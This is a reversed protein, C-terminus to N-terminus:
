FKISKKLGAEDFEVEIKGLSKASGAAAHIIVEANSNNLAVVPSTHFNEEHGSIIFDLHTSKKALTADDLSSKNKYGLQSLCVVVSCNKVNKLYASLTNVTEVINDDGPKASIIGTKINGKAIIKYDGNIASHHVSGKISADFSIRGSEVETDKGANLLITGSHKKRIESICQITHQNMAPTNVATHLYVLKGSSSTLTTLPSSVGAIANLPKLAVIATTALSGKILFNRRSTM